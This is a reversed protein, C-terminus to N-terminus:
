RILAITNKILDSTTSFVQSSAQYGRQYTIMNVFQGSIDVNSAELANGQVGGRGGIGAAGISLPGSQQTVAFLEGGQRELGDNNTVLGIALTGAQIVEGTNLAGYIKGDPKIEYAVVDGNGRGNQRVNTIRSGGAYQTFSGLTMTFPTQAAGNSWAPNLNLVAQARQAPDVQGTSNFTLNVQGLLVPQDATQGVEAGNVYTQATWTTTGTKFYFTDLDHRAGTSDYVSQTSVFSAASSLERYNAPNAPPTSLPASADLNGFIDVLTSPVPKTDLKGLQITGLTQTNTGSYGLVPLGSSTTLIGDNNVQFSGVRTLQPSAADGVLFYGRGSLAADLSRGTANIAGNEFNLRIRSIASGDGAGAIVETTKDDARASLLDSFEARQEKFATTNANSINDGIVAIAQGHSTIGEKSTRLASELMM